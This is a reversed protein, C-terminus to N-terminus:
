VGVDGDLTAHVRVRHFGAPQGGPWAEVAPNRKVSLSLRFFTDM